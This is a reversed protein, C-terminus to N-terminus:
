FYVEEFIPLVANHNPECYATLSNNIVNYTIDSEIFIGFLSTSLDPLQREGGSAIVYDKLYGLDDLVGQGKDAVFHRILCKEEFGTIISKYNTRPLLKIPYEM